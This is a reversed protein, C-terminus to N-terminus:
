TTAYGAAAHPAMARDHAAIAAASMSGAPAEDVRFHGHRDEGRVPMASMAPGETQRVRPPLFRVALGIRPSATRNPGSAHALMCHHLSVEGATLIAPVTKAEDIARAIQQGRTLASDEAYTEVHALKSALHSSPMFRMCGNEPTADTLAIWATCVDFPELGWYNADQHWNVQKRDHAPKVFLDASQLLIDPGIVTEVADLVAPHAVVAHLWDFLLHCKIHWPHALRPQPGALFAEVRRAADHAMAAPVAAAPFAFGDRAYRERTTAADPSLAAPTQIM